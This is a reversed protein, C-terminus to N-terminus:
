CPLMLKIIESEELKNLVGGLNPVIVDKEDDGMIQAPQLLLVLADHRELYPSWLILPVSILAAPGTTDPV